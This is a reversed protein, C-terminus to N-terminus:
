EFFLRRNSNIAERISFSENDTSSIVENSTASTSPHITDQCTTKDEFLNQLAAPAVNNQLLLNNGFSFSAISKRFGIDEIFGKDEVEYKDLCEVSSNIKKRVM